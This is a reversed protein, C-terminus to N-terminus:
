FLWPDSTQIFALSVARHVAIAEAMLASSVHSFSETVTPLTRVAEGLFIGGIGCGGPTVDWATDVKCVLMGPQFTLPPCSSRAMAPHPMLGLRPGGKNVM